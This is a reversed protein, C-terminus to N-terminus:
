TAPLAPTSSTRQLWELVIYGGTIAPPTGGGATININTSDIDIQIQNNVATADVYPLPYWNDSADHATGYIRTFGVILNIDLGHPYPGAAVTTIPYMQRQTQMPISTLFWNEGTVTPRNQAFTGIMRDNVKQAIDVYSRFVEKVLEPIKDPFDRQSPLYPSINQRQTNM